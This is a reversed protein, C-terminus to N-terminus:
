TFFLSKKTDFLLFVIKNITASKRGDAVNLIMEFSSNKDRLRIKKRNKRGKGRYM